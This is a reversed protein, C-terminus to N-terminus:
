NSLIETVGTQLLSPCTIYPLLTRFLVFFVNKYPKSNIVILLQSITIGHSMLRSWSLYSLQRISVCGIMPQYGPVNRYNLFIIKTCDKFM